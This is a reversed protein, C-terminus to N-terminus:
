EKDSVGYLHFSGSDVRELHFVLTPTEENVETVKGTAVAVSREICHGTEWAKLEQFSPNRITTTMNYLAQGPPICPELPLAM